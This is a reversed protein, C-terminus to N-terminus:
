RRRERFEPPEAELPNEPWMQRPYRRMLEKRIGPWHNKWFGGLDSTIQVPRQNPALLHLVLPRNGALLPSKELGFFDQMRSALYPEQESPYTIPTRKRNGLPIAVPALKDVLALDLVAGIAHVLSVESLESFSRRGLCARGVVEDLSLTPMDVGVRRLWDVRQVLALAADWDPFVKHVVPAVEAALMRGVAEPDGTGAGEDLVLDGYRLQETVEVRTGTWRMATKLEARDLLWDDPIRTLRRVRNASSDGPRLGGREVDPVVVFGDGGPTAADVTASGGEAFVIRAGRRQGVRDPFGALLALALARGVDEPAPSRSGGRLLQVLQKREQEAQGSLRAGDLVRSVLDEAVRSREGLAAVM